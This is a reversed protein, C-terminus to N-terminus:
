IEHEKIKKIPETKMIKDALFSTVLGTLLSILSIFPFYFFTTFGHEVFISAIAVQALSHSYAGLLSVGYITILHFKKEFLFHGLCMLTFSLLAGALSMYFPMQFITGRLLAVIFVRLLSVLLAEYFPCSYLLIVIVLNALGPKVGPVWSPIFSEVYGLVIALALMISLFAIKHISYRKKM